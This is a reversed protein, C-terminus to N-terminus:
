SAVLVDDVQQVAQFLPPDTIDSLAPFAMGVIGDPVMDQFTDQLVTAMGFNCRVAADGLVVVDTGVVTTIGGQGYQLREHMCVHM